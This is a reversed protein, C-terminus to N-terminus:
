GKKQRTIRSNTRELTSKTEIKASNMISPWKKIQKLNKNFMEQMKEIKTELRNIQLQKKDELNPDDKSHDLEKEPLSWVEEWKAQNPPKKDHEKVQQINRQRKMKNLNSHQPAMEAPQFNTTGRLQQTQERHTPNSWHSTLTEQSPSTTDTSQHTYSSRKERSYLSTDLLSNPTNIPKAHSQAAWRKINLTTKRNPPAYAHHTKCQFKNARLHLKTETYTHLSKPASM